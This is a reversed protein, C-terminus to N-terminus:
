SLDDAGSASGDHVARRTEYWAAGVPEGAMNWSWSVHPTIRLYLGPGVMGVRGVPADAVGYVRIGRAVFPDFSPLDDVLVAAVLGTTEVQRVGDHGVRTYCASRELWSLVDAVAAAHAAEIKDAVERPALAWVASVSKVPSFTLDYGAVARTAPRSARALFGSLERADHPQRGYAEAFMTRALDSRM